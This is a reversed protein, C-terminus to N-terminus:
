SPRYPSPPSSPFLLFNTLAPTPSLSMDDAMRGYYVLNGPFFHVRKGSICRTPLATVVVQINVGQSTCPTESRSMATQPVPSSYIRVGLYSAPTNKFLTLEGPSHKIISTTLNLILLENQKERLFFGRHYSTFSNHPFFVRPRIM